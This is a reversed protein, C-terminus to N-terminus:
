AYKHFSLLNGSLPSRWRPHARLVFLGPVCRLDGVCGGQVGGLLVQRGRGAGRIPLRAAEHQTDCAQGCGPSAGSACPGGFDCPGPCPGPCLGPCPGGCSACVGPSLSLACCAVLVACSVRRCGAAMCQCQHGHVRACRGREAGAFAAAICGSFAPSTWLLCCPASFLSSTCSLCRFVQPVYLATTVGTDM